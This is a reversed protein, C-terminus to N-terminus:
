ELALRSLWEEVEVQSASARSGNVSYGDLLTVSDPLDDELDTISRGFGSGGHTCFPIVTKGSFDYQEIFSFIAMPCTGGWIPYGLFVTDYDAMNEVSEALAPRENADLEAQGREYLADLDDPYPDQTTIRFLDAGTKEQIFEAIQKTNGSQSFYVILTDAGKQDSGSAADNEAHDAIPPPVEKQTKQTSEESKPTSGTQMSNEVQNDEQRSNGCAALTVIFLSLVACLVKKM